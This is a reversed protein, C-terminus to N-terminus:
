KALYLSLWFVESVVFSYDNGHKEISLDLAKCRPNEAHCKAIRGKMELKFENVQDEPVIRREMERAVQNIDKQLRNKNTWHNRTIKSFYTKM